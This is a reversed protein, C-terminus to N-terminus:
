VLHRETLHNYVWKIQACSRFFSNFKQFNAENGTCEPPSHRVQASLKNLSIQFEDMQSLETENRNYGLAAYDKPDVLKKFDDETVEM